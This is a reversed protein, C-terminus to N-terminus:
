PTYLTVQIKNSHSLRVVFRMDRYDVVPSTYLPPVELVSSGLLGILRPCFM